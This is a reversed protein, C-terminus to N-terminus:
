TLPMDSSRKYKRITYKIGTLKNMQKAIEKLQSLLKEDAAIMPKMEIGSNKEIPYCLIGEETGGKELTVFAYIYKICKVSDNKSM